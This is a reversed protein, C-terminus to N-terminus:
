SYSRCQSEGELWHTGLTETTQRKFVSLAFSYLLMDTGVLRHIGPSNHAWQLVEYRLGSPVGANSHLTTNWERVPSRVRANFLQMSLDWYELVGVATYGALIDEVEQLVDLGRPGDLGPAIVVQWCGRPPSMM